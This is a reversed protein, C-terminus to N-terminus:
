TENNSIRTIIQHQKNTIDEQKDKKKKLCFVAYSIRMLSQLESTHEESRDAPQHALCRQPNVAIWQFEAEGSAQAPDDGRQPLEGDLSGRELSRFLTTYPFLTDTRTSRPPRRLMVLFICSLM